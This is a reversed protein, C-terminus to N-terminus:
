QKYQAIKFFLVNSCTFTQFSVINLFMTQKNSHIGEVLSPFHTDWKPTLRVDYLLFELNVEITWTESNSIFIAQSVFMGLERPLNLGLVM